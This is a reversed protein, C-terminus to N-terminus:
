AREAVLVSQRSAFTQLQEHGDAVCHLVGMLLPDNM